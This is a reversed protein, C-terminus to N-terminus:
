GSQVTRASVPRPVIIAASCRDSRPATGCEEDGLTFLDDLAGDAGPVPAPGEQMSLAMEEVVEEREAPKHDQIVDDVLVL